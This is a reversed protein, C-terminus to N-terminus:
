FAISITTSYIALPKLLTKIFIFINFTSTPRHAHATFGKRTKFQPQVEEKYTVASPESSPDKEPSFFAM